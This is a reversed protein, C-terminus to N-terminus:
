VVDCCMLNSESCQMVNCQVAYCLMYMAYVYCICLVYLYIDKCMYKMYM